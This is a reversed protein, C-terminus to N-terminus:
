AQHKRRRALMGTVGLGALLLAWGSPEPVAPSGFVDGEFTGGQLKFVGYIDFEYTGTDLTYQDTTISFNNTGTYGVDDVLPGTGYAFALAFETFYVSAQTGRAPGFDFSVIENDPINVIFVDVFSTGATRVEAPGSFFGTTFNLEQLGADSFTWQNDGGVTNLQTVPTDSGAVELAQASTLGALAFTTALALKKLHKM